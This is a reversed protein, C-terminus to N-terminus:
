INSVASAEHEGRWVMRMAIREVRPATDNSYSQPTYTEREAEEKFGAKQYMNRAALNKSDVLVTCQIEHDGAKAHAKALAAEVLAMGLGARRITPDVFIGNIQFHVIGSLAGEIDVSSKEQEPRMLPDRKASIAASQAPSLPGILVIMGVWTSNFLQEFFDENTEASWPAISCDTAFFHDAEGKALRDMTFSLDKQNEEEYSSAFAEPAARLAQLRVDRMKMAFVKAVDNDETYEDPNLKPLNVIGYTACEM